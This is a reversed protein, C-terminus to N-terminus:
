PLTDKKLNPWTVATLAARCAQPVAALPHGYHDAAMAALVLADVEDNGHVQAMPYRRAVAIVVADKGSGKGSGKGTAYKKLQAPTVVAVPVSRVWLAHTVLWWLGGMEHQRNPSDFSPGEVVVLDSGDCLAKCEDRIWHMRAHGTRNGPVLTTLTTIQNGTTIAAGTSTLSLDLATIRLDTM